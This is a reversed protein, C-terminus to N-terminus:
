FKKSWGVKIGVTLGGLVSGDNENTLDPPTANVNTTQTRGSVQRDFVVGIPMAASIAGIEGLNFAFAVDALVVFNATYATNYNVSTSERVQLLASGGGPHWAVNTNKASVAALIEGVSLGCTLQHKGIPIVAKGGILIPVYSLSSEQIDGENTANRNTNAPNNIECKTQDFEATGAPLAVGTTFTMFVRDTLKRDLEYNINVTGMYFTEKGQQNQATAPAVANDTIMYEQTLPVMSYGISWVDARAAGSLGVLLAVVSLIRM